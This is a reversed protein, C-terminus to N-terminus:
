VAELVLEVRSIRKFCVFRFGQERAGRYEIKSPDSEKTGQAWLPKVGMECMVAIVSLPAVVAIDDYGGERFRKVIQGADDFPRPDTDVAM